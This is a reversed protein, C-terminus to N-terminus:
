YSVSPMWAGEPKEYPGLTMLNMVKLVRWGDALLARFLPGNSLPVFVKNFPPSLPRIAARLIALVDENTEAVAHGLLGPIVYGCLDGDCERVFAPMGLDLAFASDGRRSTRYLRHSLADVATLDERTMPRVGDGHLASETPEGGSEMMALAERQEFGLSAYLALSVRNYAEQVLRVSMVESRQAETLVDEM